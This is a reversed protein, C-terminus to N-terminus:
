LHRTAVGVDNRLMHPILRPVLEMMGRLDLVLVYSPAEVKRHLLLM